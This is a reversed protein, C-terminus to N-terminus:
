DETQAQEVLRDFDSHKVHYSKDDDVTHRFNRCVSVEELEGSIIRGCIIRIVCIKFEKKMGMKMGM